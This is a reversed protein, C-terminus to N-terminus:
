DIVERPWQNMQPPGRLLSSPGSISINWLQDANADQSIDPGPWYLMGARGSTARGTMVYTVLGSM